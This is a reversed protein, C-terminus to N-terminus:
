EDEEETWEVSEEEEPLTEVFKPQVYEREPAKEVAEIIDEEEVISEVATVKDNNRLDM